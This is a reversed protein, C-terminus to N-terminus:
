ATTGECIGFHVVEVLEPAEEDQSSQADAADHHRCGDHRRNDARVIQDAGDSGKGEGDTDNAAGDAVGGIVVDEDRLEHGVCRLEDAAGHLELEADGVRRVNLLGDNEGTGREERFQLLDRANRAILRSVLHNHISSLKRVGRAVLVHVIGTNRETGDANNRRAEQLVHILIHVIM